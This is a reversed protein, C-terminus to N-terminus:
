VSTWFRWALLTGLIFVGILFVPTAFRKVYHFTLAQIIALAIFIPWASILGVLDVRSMDALIQENTLGAYTKPKLVLVPVIGSLWVTVVAAVFVLAHKVWGARTM